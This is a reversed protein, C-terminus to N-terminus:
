ASNSPPSLSRRVTGTHAHRRTAAPTRSSARSRRRYPCIRVFIRGWRQDNVYLNYQAIWREAIQLHWRNLKKDGIATMIRAPERAKLIVVVQDPKAGKFYPDVFEDRRGKPAEVIPANWKDAQDKVWCQFQEAAGRLVDRSVPYLRRYTAFFGVVREPQQFPQILGNLLIRDFCRYGFRISDRHHEYFANMAAEGQNSASLM